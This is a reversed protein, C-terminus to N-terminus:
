ATLRRVWGYPFMTSAQSVSELCSSSVATDRQIRVSREGSGDKEGFVLPHSEEFDVCTTKRIRDSFCWVRHTLGAPFSTKLGPQSVWGAPFV